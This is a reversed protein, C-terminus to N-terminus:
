EMVFKLLTVTELLLVANPQVRPMVPVIMAQEMVFKPLTVFEKLPVANPQVRPMVPVIMAQEMVFKLLTVTELLLVANPQVRLMALVNDMAPVYKTLMVFVPQLEVNQELSAPLLFQLRYAIRL